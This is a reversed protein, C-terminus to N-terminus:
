FFEDFNNYEDAPFIKDFEAGGGHTYWPKIIKFSFPEEAPNCYLCKERTANCCTSVFAGAVFILLVICILFPKM